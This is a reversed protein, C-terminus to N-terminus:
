KDNNVAQWMALWTFFFILFILGVIPINDPKTVILMFNANFLSLLFFLGSGVGVIVMAKGSWFVRPYKFSLWLIILLITFLIPPDSLFNIIGTM